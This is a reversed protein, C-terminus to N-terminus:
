RESDHRKLAKRHVEASQCRLQGAVGVRCAVGEM